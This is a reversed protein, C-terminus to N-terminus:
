HQLLGKVIKVEGLQVFVGERRMVCRWSRSARRTLEDQPKFKRSSFFVGVSASFFIEDHREWVSKKMMRKAKQRASLWRFFVVMLVRIRVEGIWVDILALLTEVCAILRM